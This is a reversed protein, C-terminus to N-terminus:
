IEFQIVSKTGNDNIMSFNGKLQEVLMRVITLGFGPSKNSDIREYIGIGNDHITLTAINENKVISILVKGSDRGKFAYKFVNTMLENIIIGISTAMKSSISFESIQKEITINNPVFAKMLADILSETYMKISVDHYDKSLLLRDYLVRISQVRSIANNLASKVEPNSTLNIQLFILGEINAINNKVRHHIEKLLAEKELLQRKIEEEARKRETIDIMVTLLYQKGQSIVVEGSFLGYRLAGDRARISLEIDTIRGEAALREAVAQQKASDTFIGLEASSKGLVEARTFGMTKLWAENVDVLRHDSLSTLAMLTPNNRFLREFRQQAEQEASLDKSIGFVVDKGDWKGFSVRTEVPILAGDKRQVPLPCTDREGRFMAAFIEGAEQRRDAPHVGLIGLADLEELSYGLKDIIANNAYIVRGEPTGVVVMDTMTEFFLRFNKESEVLAKEALKRKNENELERAVRKIVEPLRELFLSDKIIYDRAGLKMMEVAIREDGQGTSVIFAPLLQEKKQLQNLLEKASMDPLSYDLLMMYPMNENLWGRADKASYVSVAEHGTEVVKETILEALGKDDEVILIIM